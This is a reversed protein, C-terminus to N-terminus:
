NWPQIFTRNIVALLLVLPAATTYFVFILVREWDKMYFFKKCQKDTLIMGVIIWCVFVLFYKEEM